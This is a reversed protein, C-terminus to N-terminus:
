RWGLVQLATRRLLLLPLAAALVLLTLLVGFAATVTPEGLQQLNLVVVALTTSRPGYLLSSMTLEHLAFLFVLLWAAVIVPRFLPLVVTVLATLPGAGSARSARLLDPPFREASAALPRLGLVWLKSVYAILIILLTDRLWGGYTILIAVALTSGPLAFTLTAAAPLAGAARRRALIVALGGLLLALTAAGVGLVFSNWLAVATRGEFAATFNELTWNAPTPPLGVARTLATLVLAVLPLITTLVLYGALVLAPLWSRGSPPISAGEGGGTRTAPSRRGLVAAAALAALAILVLLCALLVVRTFSAPDASFALDQYIRTTVTAFGAPIGLVAPVGFANVSTVFVLVAGAVIAPRLLPLTVTRLAGWGSAGHVRAARELDPEARTALGAAAVVYALPMANVALVAVIGVPGFLGPLTLGLLEDSLAAPVYARVWSVAAVFPPTLLPLLMGLRLWRRGRAASRETVLAAAVGGSVALATVALAVGLTNGIAQLSRGDVLSALGDGSEALAVEVLRGLPVVALVVVALAAITWGVLAAVAWRGAISPGPGARGRPDAM